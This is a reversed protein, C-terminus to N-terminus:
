FQKEYGSLGMKREEKEKWYTQKKKEIKRALLDVGFLKMGLAVPTFILYYLVFLIIRTNVRSLVLALKMWFIYIPRLLVPSLVALIFFICFALGTWYAGPKHRIILLLSIILFVAAMTIGFKRLSHKDLGQMKM